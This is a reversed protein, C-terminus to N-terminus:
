AWSRPRRAVAHIREVDSPGLVPAMGRLAFVLAGETAVVVDDPWRRVRMPTGVIAIVPRVPVSEGGPGLRPLLLERVRDAEARARPVADTAVGSVVLRDGDLLVTRHRHHRSDIVCVGPPGILVHDLDARGGDLPVSHLVRWRPPRGLLRDRRTRGTLRELLHATRAEGDAGLRWNRDPLGAGRVQAAVHGARLGPHHRALDPTRSRDAVDARRSPAFSTAVSAAPLTTRTETM